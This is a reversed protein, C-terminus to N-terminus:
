GLDVGLGYAEDLRAADAPGPKHIGSEYGALKSAAITTIAAAQGLSLGAEMRARFLQEGSMEEAHMALLKFLSSVKRKTLPSLESDEIQQLINM